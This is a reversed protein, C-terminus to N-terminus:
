LNGSKHTINIGGLTLAYATKEKSAEEDGNVSKLGVQNLNKLARSAAAWIGKKKKETAVVLGDDECETIM